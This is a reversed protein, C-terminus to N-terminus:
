DYIKIYHGEDTWKETHTVKFDTLTKVVYEGVEEAGSGTVVIETHQFLEQIVQAVDLVTGITEVQKM